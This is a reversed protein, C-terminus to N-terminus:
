SDNNELRERWSPKSREKNILKERKNIRRQELWYDLIKFKITISKKDQLLGAFIFSSYVVFAWCILVYLLVYAVYSSIINNVYSPNCWIIWLILLTPQVIWWDYYKIKM